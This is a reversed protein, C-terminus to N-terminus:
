AIMRSIVPDLMRNYNFYGGALICNGISAGRLDFDKPRRENFFRLHTRIIKRLPDPVRRILPDEGNMIRIKSDDCFIKFQSGDFMEDFDFDFKFEPILPMDPM